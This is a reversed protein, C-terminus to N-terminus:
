QLGEKKRSLDREIIVGSSVFDNLLDLVEADDLTDGYSNMLAVLDVPFQHAAFIKAVAVGIKNRLDAM